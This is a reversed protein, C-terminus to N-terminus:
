EETADASETREEKHTKPLGYVSAEIAGDVIRKIDEDVEVGAAELFKYVLEAATQKREEGPIQSAKYMQEAALVAEMAYNLVKDVIGMPANPFLKGIMDAMTDLATLTINAKDVIGSVDVGRKILRPLMWLVGVMVLVAFVIIAMIYVIPNNMVNEM